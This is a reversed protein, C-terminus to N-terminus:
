FNSFRMKGLNHLITGIPQLTHHTKFHSHRRDDLGPHRTPNSLDVPNNPVLGGGPGTMMGQMSVPVAVPGSQGYDVHGNM